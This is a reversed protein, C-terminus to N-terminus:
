ALPLLRLATGWPDITRVGDGDQSLPLGAQALRQRQAELIRREAVTLSFWALGTASADRQAAGASRWVNLAVHHHYGGSALFAAGSRQRTMGLGVAESYFALGQPLAGVRLHVHGIRLGGPAGAYRSSRPDVLSLVGDVDLPQSGMTVMGDRWEWRSPDRDSYVEVGNGEPDDLYVAESVAHDAFGTLPIRSTAVHVLWRALDRRSPMLFATHFLGAARPSEAQAEPTRVLQVLPAGGAGLTVGAPDRGLVTLGIVDRYFASMRELDRVRLAVMGVRIPTANALLASAPPSGALSTGEARLAGTMAATATAAGALELLRRRTPATM